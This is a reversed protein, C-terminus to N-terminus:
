ESIRDPLITDKIEDTHSADCHPCRKRKKQYKIQDYNSSVPNSSVDTSESMELLFSSEIQNYDVEYGLDELFGFTIKSLIGRDFDYAPSMLENVLSPQVKGNVLKAYEAIHTGTSQAPVSDTYYDALTKSLGLQNIKEQIIEKYKATGYIGNYQTPYGILTKLDYLRWYFNSLGLAHIIEHLVVYYLGSKGDALIFNSDQRNLDIQDIFVSGSTIQDRVYAENIEDVQISKLLFEDNFNVTRLQYINAGFVDYPYSSNITISSSNASSVTLIQGNILITSSAGIDSTTDSTTEIINSGSDVYAKGPLIDSDIMSMELTNHTSEAQFCLVVTFPENPLVRHAYTENNQSNKVSLMLNEGLNPDAHLIIRYFSGINLNNLNMRAIGAYGSSCVIRISDPNVSAIYANALSDVTTHGTNYGFNRSLIQTYSPNKFIQNTISNEHEPRAAALTGGSRSDAFPMFFMNVDISNQIISEAKSIALNIQAQQETNIAINYFTNIKLNTNAYEYQPFPTHRPYSNKNVTIYDASVGFAQFTSPKTIKLYRNSEISEIIYHSSGVVIVDGESLEFTFMTGSGQVFDFGNYLYIQGTLQKAPQYYNTWQLYSIPYISTLFIFDLIANLGIISNDTRIIHAWDFLKEASESVYFQGEQNYNTEWYDIAAQKTNFIHNQTPSPIQFQQDLIVWQSSPSNFYIRYNHSKKYTANVNGISDDWLGGDVRVPIQINGTFTQHDVYSQFALHKSLNMRSLLRTRCMNQYGNYTSTIQNETELHFDGASNENSTITSEDLILDASSFGHYRSGDTSFTTQGEMDINNFGINNIDLRPLPTNSVRNHIEVELEPYKYEGHQYYKYTRILGVSFSLNEPNSPIISIYITSQNPFYYTYPSTNTGFMNSSSDGYSSDNVSDGILIRANDDNYAEFYYVEGPEVEFEIYIGASVSQCNVQIVSFGKSWPSVFSSTGAYSANNFVWSGLNTDGNEDKLFLGDNGFPVFLKHKSSVSVVVDRFFASANDILYSIPSNIKDSVSRFQDGNRYIELEFEHDGYDIGEETIPAQGGYTESMKHPAIFAQSAGNQDVEGNPLQFGTQEMTAFLNKLNQDPATGEGLKAEIFAKLDAISIQGDQPFEIM